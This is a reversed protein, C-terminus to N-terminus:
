PYYNPNNPLRIMVRAGEAVVLNTELGQSDSLKDVKEAQTKNLKMNAQRGVIKDIAPIVVRQLRHMKIMKESFERCHQTRSFLTLILNGAAVNEPRSEWDYVWRVARWLLQAETLSDELRWDRLTNPLRQEKFEKSSHHAKIEEESTMLRDMDRFIRRTDLVQLVDDGANGLKIKELLQILTPDEKARMSKTLQSVSLSQWLNIPTVKRGFVNDKVTKFPYLDNVPALQFLDGFFLINMNGFIDNNGFMEGLRHSIFCLMQASVMSIEDIIIIKAGAMEQKAKKLQPGRLDYNGM